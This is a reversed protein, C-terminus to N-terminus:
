EQRLNAFLLCQQMVLGCGQYGHGPVQSDPESVQHPVDVPLPDRVNDGRDQLDRM